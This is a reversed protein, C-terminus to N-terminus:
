EVIFKGNMLGSHGPFSCIFTYTGKAPATFTIIDKEGGGLMKTHAIVDKGGDPIYDTDKSTAAKTAFAKHDVGAKLLVFNHGMAEKPIKGVHILTLTIEQGEKVIFENVNFQMQDDGELVLKGDVSAKSEEKVPEEKKPEEKKVTEKKPEVTKATEEGCSFMFLAVVTLLLITKKM